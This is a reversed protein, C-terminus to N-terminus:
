KLNLRSYLFKIKEYVDNTTNLRLKEFFQGSLCHKFAESRLEDFGDDDRCTFDTLPKTEINVMENCFQEFNEIDYCLINTTTMLDYNINNCKVWFHSVYTKLPIHVRYGQIIEPKLGIKKLYKYLIFSQPLSSKVIKHKVFYDIILKCVSKIKVEHNM